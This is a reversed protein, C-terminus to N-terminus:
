LKTFDFKNRMEEYYKNFVSDNVSRYGNKESINEFMFFLLCKFDNFSAEYGNNEKIQLITLENKLEFLSNNEKNNSFLLESINDKSINSARYFGGISVNKQLNFTEEMSNNINKGFEYYQILLNFNKKNLKKLFMLDRKLTECFKSYNTLTLKLENKLVVDDRVLYSNRDKSSTVLELQCNSKFKMLQWYNFIEKPIDDLIKNKSIAIVITKLNNIKIHYVGLFLPLFSSNDEIHEIYDKLFTICSKENHLLSNSDSIEINYLKDFTKLVLKETKKFSDEKAHKYLLSFWNTGNPNLHSLLSLNLLNLEFKNNELIDSFEKLYFAKVEVTLNDFKFHDIPIDDSYSFPQVMRKLKDDSFDNKNFNYTTITDHIKNVLIFNSDLLPDIRKESSQPSYPDKNLSKDIKNREYDTTANISNLVLYISALSINITNDFYQINTEDMYYNLHKTFYLMFNDRNQRMTDAGQLLFTPRKYFNAGFAKYLIGLKTNSLIYYFFDSSYISYMCFVCDLTYVCFFLYNYCILFTNNNNEKYITMFLTFICLILYGIIVLLKCIARTNLYKKPVTLKNIRWKLFLCLICDLIIIFISFFAFCYNNIISVIFYTQKFITEEDQFGLFKVAANTLSIVIIILEVWLILYKKNTYSNFVFAVDILSRFEFINIIFNYLYTFCFNFYIVIEISILVSKNKYLNTIWMIALFLFVFSNFLFKEIILVDLKIKKIKYILITWAILFSLAFILISFTIWIIKHTSENEM